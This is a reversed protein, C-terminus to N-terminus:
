VHLGAPRGPRHRQRREVRYSGTRWRCRQIGGNIGYAISYTSRPLGGLDVVSGGSWEVAHEFGGVQSYGVAQGADNIGDAVSLTSGPLGGLNIVSGDSWEIAYQHGGVSSSGVAQEAGNISLAVSSSDLLGGLNIVGGGSWKVAAGGSAGVVQGAANIGYAFDPTSGPLGGLNIVSGGSWATACIAGFINFDCQAHASGATEGLLCVAAFFALGCAKWFSMLGMGLM